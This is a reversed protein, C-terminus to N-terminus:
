KTSEEVSKGQENINRCLQAVHLAWGEYTSRGNAAKLQRCALRLNDAQRSLQDIVEPKIDM